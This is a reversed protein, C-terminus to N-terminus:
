RILPATWNHQQLLTDLERRERAFGDIQTQLDKVVIQRVMRVDSRSFVQGGRGTAVSVAARLGGRRLELVDRRALAETVTEGTSLRSGANTHNIRAVLSELEDCVVGLEALLDEAREPAEDGEQVLVSAGVRDRLQGIRKTLDARRNLAEGILM